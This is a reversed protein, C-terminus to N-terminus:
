DKTEGPLLRPLVYAPNTRKWQIIQGGSILLWLAQKFDPDHLTLDQWAPDSAIEIAKELTM